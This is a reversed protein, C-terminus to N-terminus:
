GQKAKLLGNKPSGEEVIGTPSKPTPPPSQEWPKWLYDERSPKATEEDHKKISDRIETQRELELKDIRRKPDLHNQHLEEESIQEYAVGGLLSIKQGDYCGFLLLVYLTLVTFLFKRM